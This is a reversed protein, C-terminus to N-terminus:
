ARSFPSTLGNTLPQVTSTALMHALDSLEKTQESFAGYADRAWANWVEVFEVPTQTRALERAIDLGTVTNEHAMDLMRLYCERLGNVATLASHEARHTEEATAAAAKNFTSKAQAASKETFRRTNASVENMYNGGIKSQQGEPLVYPAFPATRYFQCM